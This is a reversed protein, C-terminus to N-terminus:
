EATILKGDKISICRDSLSNIETIDHSVFIITTQYQKKLLKILEYIQHKSEVDVSKTLEDVLLIKPNKLLSAALWFKTKIGSSCVSFETDLFDSLNLQEIFQKIEHLQKGYIHSLFILNDRLTLHPYFGTETNLAIGTLKKALSRHKVIDINDFLISGRDPLLLGSLLKLFTTKGSGNKGCLCTISQAPIYCNADYFVTKTSFSKYLNSITINKMYIKNYLKKVYFSLYGGCYISKKNFKNYQKLIHVPM